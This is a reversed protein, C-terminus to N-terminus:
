AQTEEPSPDSTLKDLNLAAFAAAMQTQPLDEDRDEVVRSVTQAATPAEVAAAAPVAQPAEAGPMEDELEAAESSERLVAAVEDRFAARIHDPVHIVEGDPGFTFGM